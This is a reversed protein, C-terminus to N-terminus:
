WISQYEIPLVRPVYGGQLDSVNQERDLSLVYSSGNRKQSDVMKLRKQKKQIRLDSLLTVSQYISTLLDSIAFSSFFAFLFASFRASRDALFFLNLQICFLLKGKPNKM